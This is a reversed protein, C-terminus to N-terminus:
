LARGHLTSPMSHRTRQMKSNDNKNGGDVVAQKGPQRMWLCAVETLVQDDAKRWLSGALVKLLAAPPAFPLQLDQERAMAGKKVQGKAKVHLQQVKRDGPSFIPNLTLFLNRDGPPPTNIVGSLYNTNSIADVVVAPM